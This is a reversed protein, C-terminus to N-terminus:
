VGVSSQLEDTGPIELGTFHQYKKVQPDTTSKTLSEAGASSDDSTRRVPEGDGLM